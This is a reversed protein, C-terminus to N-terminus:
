PSTLYRTAELGASAEGTRLLVRAVFEAQGVTLQDGAMARQVMEVARTVGQGRRETLVRAIEDFIGSQRLQQAEDSSGTFIQIFRQTAQAPQGQSLAELAGGATMERVANQISGRIATRSNQSIAARLELGQAVDELSDLLRRADTPGMILRLNAQATPSSMARVAAIAERADQNPDSAIRRTRGLLDDIYSRVGQRAAALEADSAGDLAMRAMERTTRPQLLTEGVRVAQSRSIADGAVDLATRYEPVLGGLTERLNRQLGQYARGVQSPGGMAGREAQSEAVDGLARAIYDIQRVDPMSQFVVRGDDGVRAMIQASEVGELQMLRNARQIVEGPARQLLAELRMGEETAYDIPQSYAADYAQQRAPATEQRINAQATRRGEPTGLVDDMVTTFEGYSEVVRGDVANRAITGAQGGAQASADLLERMPQGADALMANDGRRMLSQVAGDIDGRSLAAHIVAAAEGSVGLERQITQVPRGQMRGVINRIVGDLVPLSAGIAGGAIGGIAGGEVANAVRGEGGQEGYGYTAGELTGAAGGLLGTRLVNTGRTVQGGTALPAAAYALPATAAVTGAARLAMAEGPRATEMAEQSRTVAEGAQPGFMAGAAEDLYSGAFPVGQFATAARAAVPNQDIVMEEGRMQSAEAPTSGQLIRAVTAPDSSAMVDNNFTLNGQEDRRVTGEATQAVIGAPGERYPELYAQWNRAGYTQREPYQAPDPATNEVGPIAAAGQRMTAEMRERETPLRDKGQRREVMPPHPNQTQLSQMQRALLDSPSVSPQTYRQVQQALLEAPTTM